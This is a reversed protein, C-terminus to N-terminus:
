TAFNSNIFLVWKCWCCGSNHKTTVLQFSLHHSIHVYPIYRKLTIMVTSLVSPDSCLFFKNWNECILDLVFIIHTNKSKWLMVNHVKDNFSWSLSKSISYIIISVVQKGIARIIFRIIIYPRLWLRLFTKDLMEVCSVHLTVFYGSNYQWRSNLLLYPWSKWLWQGSTDHYSRPHSFLSLIM